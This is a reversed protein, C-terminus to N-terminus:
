LNMTGLLNGSVHGIYLAIMLLWGLCMIVYAFHETSPRVMVLLLALLALALELFEM